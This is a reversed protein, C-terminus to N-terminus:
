PSVKIVAMSSWGADRDSNAAKIIDSCDVDKAQVPELNTPELSAKMVNDKRKRHERIIAQRERMRVHAAQVLDKAVNLLIKGSGDESDDPM